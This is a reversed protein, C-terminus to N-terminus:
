SAEPLRILIIPRRHLLIFPVLQQFVAYFPPDDDAHAMRARQIIFGILRIGLPSAVDGMAKVVHDGEMVSLWAQRTRRKGDPPKIRLDDRIADVNMRRDDVEDAGHLSLILENDNGIGGAILAQLGTIILAHVAFYGDALIAYAAQGATLQGAAADGQGLRHFIKHIRASRGSAVAMLAAVM